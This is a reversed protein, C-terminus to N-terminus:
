GVEDTDVGKNSIDQYVRGMLKLFLDNDRRNGITVRLCGETGTSQSLDRILLGNDRLAKWLFRGPISPRFLIFNARSPYVHCQFKSQLTESLRKKEEEMRPIWSEWEEPFSLVTLATQIAYNSINYPLRISRMKECLHTGMMAYGIRIGALGWAKSFTRLLILNDFRDLFPRYNQHSFEGYAEDLVVIGPFNGILHELDTDKYLTGTPNNPQCLFLLNDYPGTANLIAEVDLDYDDKLPIEVIDAGVSEATIRYMSFTPIPVMVRKTQGWALMMLQILDDSGNGLIIQEPSLKWQEALAAILPSEDPYNQPSIGMIADIIKQKLASSPGFPRENADLRVPTSKSHFRLKNSIQKAIM